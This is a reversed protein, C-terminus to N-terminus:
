MDGVFLVRKPDARCDFKDLVYDRLAAGPKGLVIAQRGTAEELAKYFPGPGMIPTAFGLYMDTSLAVFLCEPNRLYLQARHLQKMSLNFDWDIVVARVPQDDKIARWLAPISEEIPETPGTCIDFGADRFQKQLTTSGILYIRGTVNADRLYDIVATGPHLVDQQSFSLIILHSYM